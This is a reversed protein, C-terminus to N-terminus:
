PKQESTSEAIVVAAEKFAHNAAPVGCYIVAQLIVEKIESETLGNNFAARVHLRFEDWHGLAIMASLVMCSRTKRDLGPRTWIEGWAYRTILDQFEKNFDTMAGTARDVHANGLVARRVKLGRDYLENM